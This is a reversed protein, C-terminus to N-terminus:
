NQGRDKRGRGRWRGAVRREKGDGTGKGAHIGLRHFLKQAELMIALLGHYWNSRENRFLIRFHVTRNDHLIVNYSRAEFM